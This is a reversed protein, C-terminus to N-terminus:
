LSVLPFPCPSGGSDCAELLLRLLRRPVPLVAQVGSTQTVKLWSRQTETEKETFWYCDRGRRPWIPCPFFASTVGSVHRISLSGQREELELAKRPRRSGTRRTRWTAPRRRPCVWDLSQNLWLVIARSPQYTLGAGPVEASPRPFPADLDGEDPRRGGRLFPPLCVRGSQIGGLGGRTGRPRPAVRGAASGWEGQSQSPPCTPGPVM